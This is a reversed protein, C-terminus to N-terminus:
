EPKPSSASKTGAFCDLAWQPAVMFHFVRETLPSCLSFTFLVQMCQHPCMNYPRPLYQLMQTDIRDQLQHMALMEIFFFNLCYAYLTRRGSLVCIQRLLRMCSSQADALPACLAMFCLAAFTREAVVLTWGLPYSFPMFDTPLDEQFLKGRMDQSLLYPGFCLWIQFGMYLLSVALTIKQQLIQRVTKVDLAFGITFFVAHFGIREQHSHDFSLVAFCWSPIATLAYDFAVAVLLGAGAGLFQGLHGHCMALLPQLL